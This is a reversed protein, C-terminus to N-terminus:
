FASNFQDINTKDFLKGKITQIPKIKKGAELDKINKFVIPGYFPSSTITASMEGKEIAEKAEKQGDVGVILIDKGPKLGEEKLAEIAGLAMSDNHSFIADVKIGTQLYIKILEKTRDYAETRSFDCITSELIKLRRKKRAAIRFGETRAKTVSSGPTGVLQVVNIKGKKNRLLWEAATRGEWQGDSTILATFDVGPVGRIGRNILIIPLKAAHATYFIGKFSNEKIPVAVLYSLKESILNEIDGQQNALKGKADKFIAEFGNEKASKALSKKEAKDFPNSTLAFAVGVKKMASTDKKIKVEKSSKGCSVLVMISVSVVIALFSSFLRRKM